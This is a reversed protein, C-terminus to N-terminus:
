CIEMKIYRRLSTPLNLIEMQKMISRDPNLNQLWTRIKLRCLARLSFPNQSIHMLWGWPYCHDTQGHLHTLRQTPVLRLWDWNGCSYVVTQLLRLDHQHLIRVLFDSHHEPDQVFNLSCGHQILLHFLDYHGEEAALEVPSQEYHTNLVNSTTFRYKRQMFNLKAGQTLLYEVLDRYNKTVAMHLLKVPDVELM